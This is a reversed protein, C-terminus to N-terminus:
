QHAPRTVTTNGSATITMNRSTLPLFYLDKDQGNTCTIATLPTSTQNNRVIVEKAGYPNNLMGLNGVIGAAQNTASIALAYNNNNEVTAPQATNGMIGGACISQATVNGWNTNGSFVMEICQDQNGNQYDAYGVVGGVYYNGAINGENVCNKVSAGYFGQNYGVIGAAGKPVYINRQPETTINGTNTCGEVTCGSSRGVIGANDGNGHITGSNTCNTVTMDGAANPYYAVGVIGGIKDATSTVNAGNNCNTITGKTIVRGVIAGTGSGGTITGSIVTVNDITGGNALGGAVAACLENEPATITVNTMTLNKVTGGDVIGFLGVGQDNNSPATTISLNSVTHGQFDIVNKFTTGTVQTSKRLGAGITLAHNNLDIDADVFVKKGTLAPDNNVIMDNLGALQPASYIHLDGNADVSPAATTHGDWPMGINFDPVNYMPDITVNYQVNTTLLNGYINTRYNRKFPTQPVSIDDGVQVPANANAYNWVKITTTEVLQNSKGQLLYCMSLYEYGNVPFTELTDTTTATPNVPRPAINTYNVDITNGVTEGSILELSNYAKTDVSTRLNELNNGFELKVSSRDLDSTGVNLQAFPRYLIVDKQTLTPKVDITDCVYFADYDDNNPQMKTYDVAINHNVKDYYYPETSTATPATITTKGPKSAWFVVNYTKGNVLALNVTTKLNTFTATTEDAIKKTTADYAVCILNTSTLGDSFARSTIEAPLQVTYAITGDGNGVMPNPEDSSCATVLAMLATLSLFAIKKM